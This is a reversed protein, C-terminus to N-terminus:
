QQEEKPRVALMTIKVDSDWDSRSEITNKILEGLELLPIHYIKDLEFEITYIQRNM